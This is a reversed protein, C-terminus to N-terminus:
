PLYPKEPVRHYADSPHKPDGFYWNDNIVLDSDDFDWADERVVTSDGFDWRLSTASDHVDVTPLRPASPESHRHLFITHAISGGASGTEYKPGVLPAAHLM